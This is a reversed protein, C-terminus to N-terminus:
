KGAGLRLAAGEGFPRHGLLIAGWGQENRGPRVGRFADLRDGRQEAGSLERGCGGIRWGSRPWSRSPLDQALM